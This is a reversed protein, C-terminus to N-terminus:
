CREILYGNMQYWIEVKRQDEAPNELPFLGGVGDPSYTRWIIADLAEDVEEVTFAVADNYGSLGINKMLHWFWWKASRGAEFSLRRSLALMMELFSCLGHRPEYDIGRAELFECKLQRADEVRNDDNPVFWAFEKDHLLRLLSWHTQSRVRSKVSSVQSVLWAFYEDDLQTTM